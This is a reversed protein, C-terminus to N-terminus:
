LDTFRNLFTKCITGNYAGGVICSTDKPNYELCCLPSTPILHLEPTNPNNIDWIFSDLEMGEPVEQSQPTCYAAALKRFDSPYWSIFTATRRYKTCPDKFVTLVTATSHDTTWMVNSYQNYKENPPFYQEYVDLANNQRIKHYMPKSLDKLVRLYKEDNEVKKQYRRKFDIDNINVDKPWGGELHIMGQSHYQKTTTNIKYPTLHQDFDYRM